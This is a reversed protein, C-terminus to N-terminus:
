KGSSYRGTKKKRKWCGFTYMAGCAVGLTLLAVVFECVAVYGGESPITAFGYGALGVLGAVAAGYLTKVLGRFLIKGHYSVRSTIKKFNQIM